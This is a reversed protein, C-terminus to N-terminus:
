ETGDSSTDEESGDGEASDASTDEESEDGETSDTSTGDSGTDEVADDSATSTVSYVAFTYGAGNTETIFDDLISCNTESRASLLYIAGNHLGATLAKLSDTRDPQQDTDYDAYSFSWFVSDYDLNNVMALSQVSFRGNPFRFLCMNYQFTDEMYEDLEMVAAKQDELSLQAIGEEPNYASHNGVIHGEDIMRQVLEPNTQAFPLTIFFVAKVDRNQLIDLIEGVYGAEYGVDFTLYVEDQADPIYFDAQYAGYTEQFTIAGTPCNAENRETGPAWIIEESDLTDVDQIKANSLVLGKLSVPEESGAKQSTEVIAEAIAEAYEELHEDFLANDEDNSLFGMEVLCSPMTTDRNVQLDYNESSQSGYRVGRAESIGVEDLANLINEALAYSEPTKEKTAVPVYIEIGQPDSSTTSKDIANRHLSVFYDVGAENAVAGRESLSLFSDDDRTMVVTVGKAELADRVALGLKLCDDKELRGDANNTGPDYDGHGPDICVDLDIPEVTAEPISITSLDPMAEFREALVTQTISEARVKRVIARVGVGVGLCVLLVCLAMGAIIATKVIRRIRRRRKRLERIRRKRAREYAEQSPFQSRRPMQNKSSM